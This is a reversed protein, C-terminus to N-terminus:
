NAMSAGWLCAHFKGNYLGMFIGIDLATIAAAVLRTRKGGHLVAAGFAGGMVMGRATADVVRAVCTTEDAAM